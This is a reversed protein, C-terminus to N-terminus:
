NRLRFNGSEDLTMYEDAAEAPHLDEGSALTYTAVAQESSLTCCLVVFICAEGRKGIAEFNEIEM